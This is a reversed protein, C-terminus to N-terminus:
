HRATGIRLYWSLARAGRLVNKPFMCKKSKKRWVCPRADGTERTGRQWFGGVKWLYSEVVWLLCKLIGFYSNGSGSSTSYPVEIKESEAIRDRGLKQRPPNHLRRPHIGCLSEGESHTRLRRYGSALYKGRRGRAREGVFSPLRPRWLKAERRSEHRDLAKNRRTSPRCHNWTVTGELTPMLHSTSEGRPM